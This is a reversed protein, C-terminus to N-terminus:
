SFIRQPRRAARWLRWQRRWPALDPPHFPDYQGREMGDLIPRVLALPLWAPLLGGPINAALRGAQALHARAELRLESLAALLEATTHGAAVDERRVGHRSLVDFPLYLQGRV